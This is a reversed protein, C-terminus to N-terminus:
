LTGLLVGWFIPFPADGTEQNSDNLSFNQGSVNHVQFQVTAAAALSYTQVSLTACIPDTTTVGAPLFKTQTGDGGISFDIRGAAVLNSAFTGRFTAGLLYVGTTPITIHDDGDSAIFGDTDYYSGSSSLTVATTAGNPCSLSATSMVTKFGSFTTAGDASEGPGQVIGASSQLFSGGDIPQHRVVLDLTEQLLHLQSQRIQRRANLLNLLPSPM